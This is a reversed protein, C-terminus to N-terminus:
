KAEVSNQVIVEERKKKMKLKRLAAMVAFANNLKNHTNSLFKGSLNKIGAKECIVRVPGGAVVGRGQRQPKLIIRSAEFKAEVDHPITDNVIPVILLNKKAKRTAKEIAQAVDMGKAVGLGVKGKQDGVVVTARFSFKKGGAAVRTVRALDLLKSDFEDKKAQPGGRRQYQVAM